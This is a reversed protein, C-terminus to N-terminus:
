SFVVLPGRRPQPDLPHGQAAIALYSNGKGHSQYLKSPEEFCLTKPGVMGIRSDSEAVKVLETLFDSDVIVDDNLLLIYDTGKKVAYRIGANNGGAYGLNEKNRIFKVSPFSLPLEHASRDTSANDVVIIKYNTYDIELVSNVCARLVDKRNWSLIIISVKPHM